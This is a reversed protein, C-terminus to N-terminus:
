KLLAGARTFSSRTGAAHETRRKLDDRWRILPVLNYKTCVVGDVTYSQLREGLLDTIVTNVLTLMEADTTAM